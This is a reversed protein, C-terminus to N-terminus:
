LTPTNDILIVVLEVVANTDLGIGCVWMDNKGRFKKDKTSSLRVM